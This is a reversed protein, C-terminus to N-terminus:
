HRALRFNCSAIFPYARGRSRWRVLTDYIRRQKAPPPLQENRGVCSRAFKVYGRDPRYGGHVDCLIKRPVPESWGTRGARRCVLVSMPTPWSRRQIEVSARGAESSAV